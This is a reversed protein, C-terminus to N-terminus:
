LEKDNLFTIHLWQDSAFELFFAVKESLDFTKLYVAIRGLDRHEAVLGREGADFNWVSMEVDVIDGHVPKHIFICAEIANRYVEVPIFFLNFHKCHLSLIDLIDGLFEIITVDISIHTAIHVGRCKHAVMMSSSMAGYSFIREM